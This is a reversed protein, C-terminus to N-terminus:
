AGRRRAVELLDHDIRRVRAHTALAIGALFALPVLYIAWALGASDLRALGWIIWGVVVGWVVTLGLWVPMARRARARQRLLALRRAEEKAM